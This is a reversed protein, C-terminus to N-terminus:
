NLNYTSSVFETPSMFILEYNANREIRLDPNAACLEFLEDDTYRGLKEPINLVYHM